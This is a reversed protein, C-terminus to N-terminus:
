IEFSEVRWIKQAWKNSANIKKQEQSKKGKLKKKIRQMLSNGQGYLCKRRIKNELDFYRGWKGWKKRKEKRLDFYKDIGRHKRKNRDKKLYCYKQTRKQMSKEWKEVKWYFFFFFVRGWHMKGLRKREFWFISRKRWVENGKWIKAKKVDFYNDTAKKCDYNIEKRKRLVNKFKKLM